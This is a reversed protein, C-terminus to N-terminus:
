MDGIEEVHYDELPEDWIRVEAVDITNDEGDNDAFLLVGAKDWSFREDGGIPHHNIQIGDLYIDIYKGADLVIFLRHWSGVEVSGNYTIASVGISNGSPNTFIEGDTTNSLDTQMFCHWISGQPIRFDMMISYRGVLTSGATAEFGHLLKFYSGKEVRVAKNDASPGNISSFGSGVKQLDTGLTAATIDAPNNFTWIGKVAPLPTKIRETTSFTDSCVPESLNNWSDAAFVRVFYETNEDLGDITSTITHPTQSNFYYQSFVNRVDIPSANQWDSADTKKCIEIRYRFVNENDTAQPISIKCGSWTIESISPIVGAAFTPAPKGDRNLYTFHTGDHPAKVTWRPLIEENRYTDWREIEVDGNDKINVILAETVNQFGVPHIGESVINPEIEGYTSSGDNVATFLYQYISRPDGIPFHSHGSFSIVQPYKSLLSVFRTSGWGGDSASSGYCTNLPPVHFFVFVPKGAYKVTADELADKLFNYSQINYNSNGTGTQSITIFPYGKIDIYQHLPQGISDIFNQSGVAHGPENDHNGM